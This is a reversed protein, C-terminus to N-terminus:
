ARRRVNRAGDGYDLIDENIANGEDEATDDSISLPLKEVLVECSPIDNASLLEREHRGVLDKITEADFDYIEDVLVLDNLTIREESHDM